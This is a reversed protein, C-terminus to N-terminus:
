EQERSRRLRWTFDCCYGKCCPSWARGISCVIYIFGCLLVCGPANDCEVRASKVASLLLARELKAEQDGLLRRVEARFSSLEEEHLLRRQRGEERLQERLRVVALQSLLMADAARTSKYAGYTMAARRHEACAIHLSHQLRVLARAQRAREVVQAARVSVAYHAGKSLWIGREREANAELKANQWAEVARDRQILESAIDALYKKYSNPVQSEEDIRQKSLRTSTQRTLANQARRNAGELANDRQIVAQSLTAHGSETEARQTEHDVWADAGLRASQALLASLVQNHALISEAIIDTADRSHKLSLNGERCTKTAATCTSM